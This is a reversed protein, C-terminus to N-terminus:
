EARRSRRADVPAQRAVRVPFGRSNVRVRWQGGATQEAEVRGGRIWRRITSVDFATRRAISTVTDWEHM